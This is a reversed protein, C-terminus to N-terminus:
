SSPAEAQRSPQPDPTSRLVEQFDWIADAEAPLLRGEVVARALREDDGDDVWCRNM